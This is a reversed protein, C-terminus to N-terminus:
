LTLKRSSLDTDSRMMRRSAAHDKVIADTSARAAHPLEELLEPEPPAAAEDPPDPPDEDPPPPVSFM